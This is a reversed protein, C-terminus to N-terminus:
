TGQRARLWHGTKGGLEVGNIVFGSTGDGGGAPLLRALEFVATLMQREELSEFRL